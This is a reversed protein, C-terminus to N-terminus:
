LAFGTARPVHIHDANWYGHHPTMAERLGRELDSVMSPPIPAGKEDRFATRDLTKRHSGWGEGVTLCRLLPKKGPRVALTINVQNHGGKQAHPETGDPMISGTELERERIKANVLNGDEIVRRNITRSSPVGPVLKALEERTNRYSMRETFQEALATVDPQFVRQGDFLVDRWLPFFVEDTRTDRLRHVKLSIIGFRTGIRLRM